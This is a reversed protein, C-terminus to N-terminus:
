GTRRPRPRPVAAAGGSLPRAATIRWCAVLNVTNALFNNHSLVAGKSRGTTGSTYVIAAPADGDVQRGRCARRVRTRRRRADARRRGLTTAGAFPEFATARRDGRRSARRRALIHAIERERYLINIPVLMLASSSAPWCCTSSSSAIPSISPSAIAARVGRGRSCGHALRNSRADLEGFSCRRLGGTPPTSSSQKSTPSATAALIAFLDALQM